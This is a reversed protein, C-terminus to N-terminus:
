LESAMHNVVYGSYLLTFYIGSCGLNQCGDLAPFKVDEYAMGHDKPTRVMKRAVDGDWTADM